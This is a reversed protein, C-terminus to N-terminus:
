RLRLVTRHFTVLHKEKSFSLNVVELGLARASIWFRSEEKMRTGSVLVEICVTMAGRPQYSTDM